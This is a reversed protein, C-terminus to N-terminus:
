LDIPPEDFTQQQPKMTPTLIIVIGDASEPDERMIVMGWETLQNLMGWAEKPELPTQALLRSPSVAGNRELWLLMHKHDDTLPPTSQTSQM